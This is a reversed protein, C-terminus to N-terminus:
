IKNFFKCDYFMYSMDNVDSVNWGSLNQNFGKSNNFMNVNKCNNIIM